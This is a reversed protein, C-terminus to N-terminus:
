GLVTSIQIGGSIREGRDNRIVSKNFNKPKAGNQIGSRHSGNM